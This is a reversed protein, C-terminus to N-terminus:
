EQLFSVCRDIERIYHNLRKELEKKDAENLSGASMKWVALQQELTEMKERYEDLEKRAQQLSADLAQKEKQLRRYDKAM